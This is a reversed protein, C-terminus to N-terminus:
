HTRRPDLLTCIADVAFNVILVVGLFTVACAQVVPYDRGFAGDVMLSGLGPIGFVREIVVVGGLLYRVQLGIVVVFPIVSNRFVYHVFIFAPPFGMSRAVNVHERRANELLAARLTRSFVAAPPAAIAIAPLLGTVLAGPLSEHPPTFGYSPLLDLELAFVLILVYGLWFDPMSVGVVAASTAATDTFRGRQIAAVTGVVLAVAIAITLAYLGVFFTNPLRLALLEAIQVGGAITLSRGFDFVAIATLWHWFQIPLPADLHHRERFVAVADPTAHEGLAILAPDGPAAKMVLFVALAGVFMTALAGLFRILVYQAVKLM